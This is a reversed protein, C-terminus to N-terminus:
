PQENQPACHLTSMWAALDDIDMIKENRESLALCCPFGKGIKKM